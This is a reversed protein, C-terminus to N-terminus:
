PRNGKRARRMGLWFAAGVLGKLLWVGALLDPRALSRKWKGQEMFVTWFRYLVGFQRRVTADWGWKMCYREFNGGYYSKKRLFRRLSFNGEDHVLHGDTLAVRNTRELIRRDLDWDEGAYLDTDFGGAAQFISKLFVRLGDICTANYFSREFNRVRVWWGRGAMHERIYLADPPEAAQLRAVIEELTSRILRMDADVFVLFDGAAERAGRNRQASREPGQALVRAGARAALGPTDDTSANDVVLIEALGADAAWRLTPVCAQIHLAENRTPIILSLLM